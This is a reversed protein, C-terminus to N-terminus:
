DIIELTLVFQQMSGRAAKKEQESTVELATTASAPKNATLKRKKRSTSAGEDDSTWHFQRFTNWSTEFRHPPCWSFWRLIM